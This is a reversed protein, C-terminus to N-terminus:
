GFVPLGAHSAELKLSVILVAVSRSAFIFVLNEAIWSHFLCVNASSFFFFLFSM